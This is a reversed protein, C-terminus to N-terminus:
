YPDVKIWGSNAGVRGGEFVSDIRIYFAEVPIRFRLVNTGTEAIVGITEQDSDAIHIEYRVAGLVPWWRLQAETNRLLKPLPQLM